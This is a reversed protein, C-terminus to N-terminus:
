PSQGAASIAFERADQLRMEAERIDNRALRWRRQASSGWQAKGDTNAIGRAGMGRLLKVDSLDANQRNGM